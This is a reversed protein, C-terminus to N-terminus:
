RSTLTRNDFKAGAVADGRQGAEITCERYLWVIEPRDILACFKQEIRAVLRPRKFVNSSQFFGALATGEGTSKLQGL